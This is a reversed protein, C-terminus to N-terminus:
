SAIPLSSGRIAARRRIFELPPENTEHPGRPRTSRVEKDRERVARVSDYKEELELVRSQALREALSLRAEFDEKAESERSKADKSDVASLRHLASSRASPPVSLLASAAAYSLASAASSRLAELFPSLRGGDRPSSPLGLSFSRTQAKGGIILSRRLSAGTRQIQLM